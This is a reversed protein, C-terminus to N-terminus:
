IHKL